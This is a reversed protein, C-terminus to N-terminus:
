LPRLEAAADADIFWRVEGSVPSVVQAPLLDPLYPGELVDRLRAAKGAGAVIFVVGTAANIVPPTLTVRRADLHEVFQEVVWSQTEQLAAVGPFLSATHGDPGMGLLILDFRPLASRGFLRRLEGEYALAAAQPPREGPIRHVNASPIPVHDLLARRAMRYNSDPHGPPVCREDGWFVHVKEWPIQSAFPPAALCRYAAEPTSGGALAWTFRGQTAVATQAVRVVCEVVGRALAARTEFVRVEARARM